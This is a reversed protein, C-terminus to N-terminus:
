NANDAGLMCNGIAYIMIIVLLAVFIMLHVYGITLVSMLTVYLWRESNIESADVPLVTAGVVATDDVASEKTTGTETTEEAYLSPVDLPLNFYIYNGYLM